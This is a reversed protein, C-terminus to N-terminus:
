RKEKTKIKDFCFKFDKELPVDFKKEASLELGGVNQIKGFRILETFRTASIWYFSRLAKKNWAKLYSLYSQGTLRRETTLLTKYIIPNNTM